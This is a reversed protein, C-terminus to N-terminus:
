EYSISNWYEKLMLGLGAEGFRDILYQHDSVFRYAADILKDFQYTQHLEWFLDWQRNCWLDSCDIIETKGNSM